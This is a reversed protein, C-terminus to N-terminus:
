KRRRKVKETFLAATTEPPTTIKAGQRRALETHGECMPMRRTWGTARLRFTATVAAVGMCREGETPSHACRIPTNRGGQSAAILRLMDSTKM